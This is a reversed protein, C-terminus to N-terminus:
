YHVCVFALNLEIHSIPAYKVYMTQILSSETSQIRAIEILRAMQEPKQKTYLEQRGKYEHIQGVLNIIESDWHIEKLKDYDFKRM